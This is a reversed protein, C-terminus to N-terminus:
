GYDAHLELVSDHDMLATIVARMDYGYKRGHQFLYLCTLSSSPQSDNHIMTYITTLIKSILCHYVKRNAPIITALASHTFSASFAAITSPVPTVFSLYRQAAVIAAPEDPVRISVVGTKTQVNIPGIDEAAVRGLGAGEVMVPGGLGICSNETAIIIDCAGLLVQFHCNSYKYKYIYVYLNCSIFTIIGFVLHCPLSELVANGAFCRGSVIGILPVLGILKAFSAFTPVNLQSAVVHDYDM